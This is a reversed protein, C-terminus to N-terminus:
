GQRRRKGMEYVVILRVINGAAITMLAAFVGYTLAGSFSGGLGVRVTLTWLAGAIAAFGLAISRDTARRAPAPPPRHMSGTM